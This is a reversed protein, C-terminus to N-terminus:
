IYLNNRNRTVKEFSEVEGLKVEIKQNSTTYFFAKRGTIIQKSKDVIVLDGKKYDPMLGDDTILVLSKNGFETVKFENFSLLCVTVFIAIVAYLIFLINSITKKM